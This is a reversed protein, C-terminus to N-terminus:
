CLYVESVAVKVLISLVGDVRFDDTEHRCAVLETGNECNRDGWPQVLTITSAHGDENTRDDHNNASNKLSKGLM